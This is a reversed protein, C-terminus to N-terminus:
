LHKVHFSKTRTLAGFGLSSLTIGHGSDKVGTWALAPDLYDCRNVFVTGTDLRDGIEMAASADSTWVCATLGYRSDNMLRVAQDDDLVRMIGIVPGFSEEV